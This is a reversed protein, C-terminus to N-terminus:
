GSTWRQVVGNGRPHLTMTGGDCTLEWGVTDDFATIPLAYPPAELPAGAQEAVTDVEIEDKWNRPIAVDTDVYARGTGTGAQTQVITLPQDPTATTATVTIRLDSAITVHSDVGWDITKTGTIDVATVEPHDRQVEALLQAGLDALDLSWTHGMVCQAIPSPPDESVSPTVLACGALGALMAASGAVLVTRQLSFM